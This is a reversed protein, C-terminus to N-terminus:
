FEDFSAFHLFLGYTHVGCVEEESHVGVHANKVIGLLRDGLAEHVIENFKLFM